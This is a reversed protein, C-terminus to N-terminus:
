AYNHLGAFLRSLNVWILTILIVLAGALLLLSNIRPYRRQTFGRFHFYIVYVLWAALSWLEKPDWGWYDGWARQAWFCGLALGLTLFPFGLATLQYAVVEADSGSSEKGFRLGFAAQMAAKAMFVYALIYAAVHPIFLGSQLAPPLFQPRSTFIFGAPFLLVCALFVDAAPMDCKLFRKAMVSLPYVLATLCLFIEFLTQMPAHRVEIGRIIVAGVNLLFGSMFCLDAAPKKGRLYLTLALLYGLLALYIASGTITTNIHM